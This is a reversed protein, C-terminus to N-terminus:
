REISHCSKRGFVSQTFNCGGMMESMWNRTTSVLINWNLERDVIRCHDNAVPADDRNARSARNRHRGTRSHDVIAALRDNGTEDRRMRMDANKGADLRSRFVVVAIENQLLQPLIGSSERLPNPTGFARYHNITESFSFQATFGPMTMTSGEKM